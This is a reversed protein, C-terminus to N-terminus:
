VSEGGGARRESGVDLYDADVMQRVATQTSGVQGPTHSLRDDEPKLFCVVAM